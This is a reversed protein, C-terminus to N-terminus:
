IRPEAVLLSRLCEVNQFVDLVLNIEKRKFLEILEAFLAQPRGFTGCVREAGSRVERRKHEIQSSAPLILLLFLM